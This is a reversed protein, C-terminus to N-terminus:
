KSNWLELIKEIENFVAETCHNANNEISNIAKEQNTIDEYKLFDYEYLNIFKNINLIFKFSTNDDFPFFSKKEENIILIFNKSKNYTKYWKDTFLKQHFHEGFIKKWSEVVYYFFLAFPYFIKNKFGNRNVRHIIARYGSFSLISVLFIRKKGKKGIPLIELSNRSTDKKRKKVPDKSPRILNWNKESYKLIEQRESESVYEVSKYKLEAIKNDFIEKEIGKKCFIYQDRIKYFHHQTKKSYLYIFPITVIFISLVSLILFRKRKYLNSIEPKKAYKSFSKAM